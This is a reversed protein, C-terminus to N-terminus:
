CRTRTRIRKMSRHVIFAVLIAVFLGIVYLSYAVLMAGARRFFCRQFCYMFRCDQRAPCLRHSSFPGDAPGEREALARSAMVAPVTCGFGLLMPLFAKGSLGVMGMIENMVYAVRAMYGSDELFALALFLIFINPLFTLIGGVGAIIGDVVLSILWDSAQVHQMFGCAGSRFVMGPRDRFYGKLFDGVTFTLFFVLAMIGLFILFVGFVPHTLALFGHKDTSASKEESVM